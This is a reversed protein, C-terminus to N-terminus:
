LARVWKVWAANAEQPSAGMAAAFAKEGNPDDAVGDRWGRYFDWLKGKGDLWQCTYRAMAYHLDEADNRFTEDDMGFLADLRTSEKEAPAALATILRPHRWNKVGHIEGRRPLSPAEFLSAIGENIWAPAGPFDSEVIPHVLEHTLTGLGLGANMVMRREDPRYFGYKSLCKEGWKKKCYAEYPAASPFLYVSIARRPATKFRGNMYADVADRVLAVSQAFAPGNWGPAGVVVFVDRVVENPIVPSLERRAEAVRAARDADIDYAPEPAKAPAEPARGPLHQPAPGALAMPAAAAPPPPVVPPAAASARLPPATGHTQESHGSAQCGSFVLGALAIAAM